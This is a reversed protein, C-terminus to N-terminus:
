RPPRVAASPATIAPGGKGGTDDGEPSAAKRFEEYDKLAAQARAAQGTAQYSRALQYRLSGDEDAPLAKELHPIAEAPRGVLAYARGLAGHPLPPEPDARVSRELLPIAKEPQEQALLLDGLLFTAQASEPEARLVGELARQAGALDRALRLTIALETLLRPDGPALVLAKRWEEAAEAYRRGSRHVGAAWEHSHVSPPLTSLKEFAETALEGYARIRWYAAEATKSPDAAKVVEGYRGAAYHCELTPRTCDPRGLRQEEAVEIAAWDPHGTARYIEALAAHLGRLRPARAAAQRYLQFAAPRRDERLRV